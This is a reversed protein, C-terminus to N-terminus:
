LKKGLDKIAVAANMVREKHKGGVFFGVIFGVVLSGLIYWIM